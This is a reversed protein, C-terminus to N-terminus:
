YAGSEHECGAPRSWSCCLGRSFRGGRGYHLRGSLWGACGGCFPGTEDYTGQITARDGIRAVVLGHVFAHHGDALADWADLDNLRLVDGVLSAGGGGHLVHDLLAGAHDNGCREVM